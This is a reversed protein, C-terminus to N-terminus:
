AQTDETRDSDTPLFLGQKVGCNPCVWDDSLEEFPIGNGELNKEATEDDYLFGCVSCMYAKM